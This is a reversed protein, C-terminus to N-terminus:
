KSYLLNIDDVEWTAGSSATSVYKFAIYANTSNYSTIEIDGSNVWAFSGTSKIYSLSTWTANNPNSSGNYDTSILFEMDPGSFNMANRFSVFMNAYETVDIVPSILWDENAFNGNDYGSIQAYDGGGLNGYEWFQAGTVSYNTWGGSSVDGDDFDKVWKTFRTCRPNTFELESPDRILFQFAGNYAGLVGTITGNGDPITDAAFNCYDSTRVLLSFNGSCDVLNYESASFGNETAFPLGARTGEIEVNELTVLRGIDENQVNNISIIKPTIDLGEELKIINEDVDVSDLVIVENAMKLSVGNLYIRIYDGQTFGGASPLNLTIAMSDDQVYATKYINGGNDDMTVTAFVSYDDDFRYLSRLPTNTQPNIAAVSDEYMRHLDMITIVKHEDFPINKERTAFGM